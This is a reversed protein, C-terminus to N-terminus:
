SGLVDGDDGGPLYELLCWNNKCHLTSGPYARGVAAADEREFGSVLGVGGPRLCRKIDAAMEIVAQADM